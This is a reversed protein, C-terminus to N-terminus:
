GYSPPELRDLPTANFFNLISVSSGAFYPKQHLLCDSGFRDTLAENARSSTTTSTIITHLNPFQQTTAFEKWMDDIEVVSIIRLVSLREFHNATAFQKIGEFTINPHVLNLVELNALERTNALFELSDLPIMPPGDIQLWRLPELLAPRLMGEPTPFPVRLERLKPLSIVKWIAECSPLFFASRGLALRQLSPLEALAEVDEATMPCDIELSELKHLVGTKVFPALIPKDHEGTLYLSRLQPESRVPALQHDSLGDIEVALHRLQAMIPSELLLPAAEGELRCRRLMLTHLEPHSNSKLLLNLGTQRIPNNNLILTRLGLLHSDDWVEKLFQQGVANADLNLTRTHQLTHCDRFRDYPKRIGKLRLHGVPSHQLVQPGQDALEDLSLVLREPFGREVEFRRTYKRLPGFWKKRHNSYLVAERTRLAPRQPDTEVLGDLDCQVRIFEARQIDGQEELWDAYVLRVADNEPDRVIADFLSTNDTM